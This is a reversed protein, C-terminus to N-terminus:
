KVQACVGGGDAEAFAANDANSLLILLCDV